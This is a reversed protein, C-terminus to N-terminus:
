IEGKYKVTILYALILGNPIYNFLLWHQSEMIAKYSCLVEGIVCLIILGWTLECRGTKYAQLAEPITSLAFAISGIVGADLLQNISYRSCLFEYGQQIEPSCLENM